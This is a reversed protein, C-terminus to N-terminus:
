EPKVLQRERLMRAKELDNMAKGNQGRAKALTASAVYVRPEEPFMDRTEALLREAEALEGRRIATTVATLRVDLNDPHRQLLTETIAQAERPRGNDQYIRGLALNLGPDAPDGSLRPALAEFAEAPRGQENLRDSQQVAIGDLVQALLRRSPEPLGRRDLERVLARADRTLGAKLLVGAYAIRQQPTPAVTSALAAQLASRAAGKDGLRLLARGIENGRVGAPDPQAALVLLAARIRSPEDGSTLAAQVQERAVAQQQLTRMAESRERPPLRDILRNALSLDDTEYAFAIAAKLADPSVATGAVGEAMIRRAEAGQGQKQLARALDLRLWPHDPDLGLGQRLLAIRAVPDGTGTAQRRLRDARSRDLQRLGARDGARTLKEEAEARLAESESAKGQRDLVDSLGALADAGRPGLTLATRYSEEAEALRGARAQIGGLAVFNGATRDRRMLQRLLTEAKDLAGQDALRRVEAYRARVAKGADEAPPQGPQDGDGVTARFEDRRYPALEYARDLLKTAEPFRKQKRRILALAVMAEADDATAALAAQFEREADETRGSSLAEWGRMRALVSEDPLSARVEKLKAEIAPDGPYARLYAELQDRTQFDAGQWLLTEHWAARAQEAVAPERTLERLLEIGGARAGEQFTQLRAYALRFALETPWRAMVASLADSAEIFGETSSGGLLLYFEVALSDPIKGRTFQRYLRIADEKRGADALKRAEALVQLEAPSHRQEAALAALRPDQPAAERLRATCADGADYEGLQYALRAALALLDPNQPQLALARELEQRARDPQGRQNWFLANGILQTLATASPAADQARLPAPGALPGGILAAALLARAATRRPRKM